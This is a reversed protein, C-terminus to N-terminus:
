RSVWYQVFIAILGTIGTPIFLAFYTPDQMWPSFVGRNEMEMRNIEVELRKAYDEAKYTFIVSDAAFPKIEVMEAVQGRVAHVKENLRRVSYERLKTASHRVSSWCVAVLFFNFIFICELGWTWPWSDLRHDRSLILLLLIIFPFYTISQTEKCKFLAFEMDIVGDLDDPRLGTKKCRDALVEDSWKTHYSSLFKLLKAALRASDICFFLLALFLSVSLGLMVRDFAASYQGRICNIGPFQRLLSIFMCAILAFIAAIIAARILRNRYRGRVLYSGILHTADIKADGDQYAERKEGQWQPAVWHSILIKKIESWSLHTIPNSKLFKRIQEGSIGKNAFRHWMELRHSEHRRKTVFLFLLSLLAALLRLTETLWISVGGSFVCPEERKIQSVMYVAYAFLGIIVVLVLLVLM